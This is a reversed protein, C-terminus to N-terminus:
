YVHASMYSGMYIVEVPPQINFVFKSVKVMSLLELFIVNRIIGKYFQGKKVCNVLLM